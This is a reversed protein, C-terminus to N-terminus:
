RAGGLQPENEPDDALLAAVLTRAPDAARLEHPHAAWTILAKWLAWGRARQWTARDLSM